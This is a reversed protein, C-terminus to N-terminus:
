EVADLVSNLIRIREAAGVGGNTVNTGGCLVTRLQGTTRPIFDINTEDLQVPLGLLDLQVPALALNLTGCRQTSATTTARPDASLTMMSRTTTPTTLRSAVSNSQDASGVVPIAAETVITRAAGSSPDTFSVIMIGVAAV